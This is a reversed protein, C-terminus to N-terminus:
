EEATDLKSTDPNAETPELQVGDEVNAQTIHIETPPQTEVDNEQSTASNVNPQPPPVLNDINQDREEATDLNSTDPNEKQQKPEAESGNEPDTDINAIDQESGDEPDTHINSIDQEPESGDEPDTHINSIDQEPESGDWTDSNINAIPKQHVAEIGNDEGTTTLATQQPNTDSGNEEKYKESAILISAEIESMRSLCLKIDAECANLSSEDHSQIPTNIFANVVMGVNIEDCIGTKACNEVDNDSDSDYMRTDDLPSSIQVKEEKVAPTQAHVEPNVESTPARVEPQEEKPQECVEPQEATPQARVEPQEETPQERVEPQEEVRVEMQMNFNSTSNTIRHLETGSSNKLEFESSIFNTSSSDGKNIELIKEEAEEKRRKSMEDQTKKTFMYLPSMRLRHKKQNSKELIYLSGEQCMLLISTPFLLQHQGADPVNTYICSACVISVPVNMAIGMLMIFFDYMNPPIKEMGKVMRAIVVSSLNYREIFSHLQPWRVIDDKLVFTALLVTTRYAEHATLDLCSM